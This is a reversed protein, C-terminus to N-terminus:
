RKYPKPAPMWAVVNLVAEGSRDIYRHLADITGSYIIGSADCFIIESFQEPEITDKSIWEDSPEFEYDFGCPILALGDRALQTLVKQRVFDLYEAKLAMEAKIILRRM